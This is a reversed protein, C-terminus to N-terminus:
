EGTELSADSSVSESSADPIGGDSEGSDISADAGAENPPAGLKKMEMVKGTGPQTGQDLWYVGSDDVAIDIPEDQNSAIVEPAGGTICERKIDGAQTAWYVYHADLAIAIHRGTHSAAIGAPELFTRAAVAGRPLVTIFHSRGFMDDESWAANDGHEALTAGCGCAESSEGRAAVQVPGGAVSTTLIAYKAVTLALAYLRASDVAIAAPTMTPPVGPVHGLDYVRDTAGSCDATAGLLSRHVTTGAAMYLYSGDLAIESYPGDICPMDTCAGPGSESANGSTAIGYGNDPGWGMLAFSQGSVVFSVEYGGGPSCLLRPHVGGLVVALPSPERVWIPGASSLGLRVLGYRGSALAEPSRLGQTGAGPGCGSAGGSNSAGHQSADADWGADHVQGGEARSRADALSSTHATNGCGLAICACLLAPVPLLSGAV